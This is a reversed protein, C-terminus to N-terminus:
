ILGGAHAKLPFRGLVKSQWYPNTDEPKSGAPPVCKVGDRVDCQEGHKNIWFWSPAWKRRKEEVYTKGILLPRLEDPVYEGTFNPTSFADVPVVNYGSGPKCCKAFESAPDDPNGILLIKSFDNAILSDAAEYLSLPI